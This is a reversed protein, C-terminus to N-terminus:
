GIKLLGSGIVNSGRKGVTEDWLYCQEEKIALNFMTMNYTCLKRKYFLTSVKSCPTYLVAELDFTFLLTSPNVSATDKIEQKVIYAANKKEIHKQKMM